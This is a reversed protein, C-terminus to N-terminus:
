RECAPRASSSTSTVPASDIRVQALSGEAQEVQPESTRLPRDLLNLEDLTETDRAAEPLRANGLGPWIEDLGVNTCAARFVGLIREDHELALRFRGATMPRESSGGAAAPHEDARVLELRM